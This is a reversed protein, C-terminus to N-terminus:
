NRAVKLDELLNNLVLFNGIADCDPVALTLNRTKLKGDSGVQLSQAEIEQGCNLESVEAEVSL